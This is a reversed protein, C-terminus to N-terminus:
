RHCTLNRDAMGSHMCPPARPAAPRGSRCMRPRCRCTRQSGRAAGISSQKGQPGASPAPPLIVKWTQWQECVCRDERGASRLKPTTRQSTLSDYVVNAPLAGCSPMLIANISHPAAQRWRRWTSRTSTETHQATCAISQVKERWIMVPSCGFRPWIRMGWTGSSHGWTRCTCQHTASTCAHCSSDGAPQWLLAAQSLAALDIAVVNHMSAGDRLWCGAHAERQGIGPLTCGSPATGLRQTHTHTRAGARGWAWCGGVVREAGRLLRAVEHHLAHAQVRLLPGGGGFHHLPQRRQLVVLRSLGPRRNLEIAGTIAAPARPMGCHRPQQRGGTVSGGQGWSPLAASVTEVQNRHTIGAGSFVCCGQSCLKEGKMLQSETIRYAAEAGRGQM